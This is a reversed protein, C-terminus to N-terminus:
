APPALDDGHAHGLREHGGRGPDDDRDDGGDAEVDEDALDARTHDIELVRALLQQHMQGGGGAVRAPGCGSRGRVGRRRRLLLRNRGPEQASPGPDLSRSSDGMLLCAMPVSPMVSAFMVGNASTVVVRITTKRTVSGVSSHLPISTCLLGTSFPLGVTTCWGALSRTPNSVTATCGSPM